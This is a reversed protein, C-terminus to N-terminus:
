KYKSMFEEIAITIVDQKNLLKYQKLFDNLRGNTEKALSLSTRVYDSTDIKMLQNHIDVYIHLDDHNEKVNALQTHQIISTDGNAGLAASRSANGRNILKSKRPKQPPPMEGEIKEFFDGIKKCGLKLMHRYLVERTTGFDESMIQIVSRTTLMNNIKDLQEEAPLTKFEKWYSIKDNM